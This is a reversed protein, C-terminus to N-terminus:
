NCEKGATGLYYPTGMFIIWSSVTREKHLEMISCSIKETLALLMM